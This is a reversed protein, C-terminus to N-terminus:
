RMFHSLKVLRSFIVLLIITTILLMLGLASAMGWNVVENVHYTIMYSIM